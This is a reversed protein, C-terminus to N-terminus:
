RTQAATQLGGHPHLLPTWQARQQHAHVHMIHCSCLGAHIEWQEAAARHVAAHVSIVGSSAAASSARALHSRVMLAALARTTHWGSRGPLLPRAAAPPAAPTVM